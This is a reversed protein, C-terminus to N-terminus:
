LAQAIEADTLVPAVRVDMLDTWQSSFKWLAGANDTEFLSFGNMGGVEVWRGLVKLDPAPKPDETKFRTLAREFNEPKVSWTVMYKM